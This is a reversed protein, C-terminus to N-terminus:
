EAISEIVQELVSRCKSLDFNGNTFLRTEMDIWYPQVAKDRISDLCEIVNDPGIGGAWGCCIDSLGREWNAPVVGAGHSQDFLAACRFRRMAASILHDNVGDFQNIIEPEWPFMECFANLIREQIAPREEGHWNLQCRSFSMLRPGLEELLLPRGDAISNLYRGCIHLSLNMRGDGLECNLDVLRNIWDRTPFRVGEHSGILIGWEVFPFEKSLVALSKPDVSDDAGTLTVFRLEHNKM